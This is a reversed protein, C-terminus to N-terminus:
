FFLFSFCKCPIPERSEVVHAKDDQATQQTDPPLSQRTLEEQLDLLEKSVTVSYDRKMDSCVRAAALKLWACVKVAPLFEILRDRDIQELDAQMKSLRDDAAELPLNASLGEYNAVVRSFRKQIKWRIELNKSNKILNNYFDFDANEDQLGRVWKRTKKLNEILNQKKGEAFEFELVKSHIATPLPLAAADAMLLVFNNMCDWSDEDDKTECMERLNESLKQFTARIMSQRQEEDIGTQRGKSDTTAIPNPRHAAPTAKPPQVVLQSFLAAFSVGRNLGAALSIGSGVPHLSAPTGTLGTSAVGDNVADEVGGGGGSTLHADQHESDQDYQVRM